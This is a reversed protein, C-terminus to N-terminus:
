PASVDRLGGLLQRDNLEELLYGALRNAGSPTMHVPDYFDQPAFDRAGIDIFVGGAETCVRSMAQNLALLSARYDLGNYMVGEYRFMDPLGRLAGGQGIWIRSPQTVCIPRAGFNGIYGLIAQLRSSYGAVNAAILADIGASTTTAVYDQERPLAAGHRAYRNESGHKFLASVTQDLGYLASKERIAKAISGSLGSVQEPDREAMPQLRFGADNIGIYLLVYKPRLGDILPFWNQFAALHGFTSHGDVGANCVRLEKNLRQRVQAALQDQFTQGDSIYRQDTTSGGVTLIDINRPDECQGRLGNRDRTYVVAPAGPGYISEVSYHITRSRVINLPKTANWPDHFIWGGLSLELVLVAFLLSVILGIALFLLKKIRSMSAGTTM